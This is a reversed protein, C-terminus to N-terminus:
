FSIIVAAMYNRCKNYLDYLDSLASKYFFILLM